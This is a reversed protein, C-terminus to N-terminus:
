TLTRWPRQDSRHSKLVRGYSTPHDGSIRGRFMHHLNEREKEIYLCTSTQTRGNGATQQGTFLAHCCNVLPPRDSVCAAIARWSIENRRHYDFSILRSIRARALESEWTRTHTHASLKNFDLTYIHIYNRKNDMIIKCEIIDNM